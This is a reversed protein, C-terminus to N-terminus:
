SDSLMDSYSHTLLDEPRIAFEGQLQAVLRHGEAADHDADLEAEFELFTGLGHVADLHIRVNEYLYVTRSKEVVTRVGLGAALAAVLPQPHEIPIRRYQSPRSTAENPREYWILEATQGDIERLKLRGARCHFYTDRQQLEGLLRASLREATARAEALSACRAKLEINCRPDGPASSSHNKM